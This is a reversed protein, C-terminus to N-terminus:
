LQLLVLSAFGALRIRRPGFMFFPAVLEAFFMFGVSLGHFWPPMQHIYWSTWTPLPQTQYHYELAKWNWWAPDQSALKVVGSLFMLRFVLWRVLWIRFWWPEDEARGLRIGMSGHAGGAAGGGPAALGVSLGSVGPGGGRAFPLLGLPAVHVLRASAGRRAGREAGDRGLLPRALGLGVCQALVLDAAALVNAPGPELVQRAQDLYEAAPLIGRSGILGDVQAAM